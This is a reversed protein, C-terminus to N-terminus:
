NALMGTQNVPTRKNYTQLPEQDHMNFFFM